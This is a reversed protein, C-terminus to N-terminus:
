PKITLAREVSWGRILRCSVTKRNLGMDEAWAIMPKTIGRFTIWYTSRRNRSQEEKTSWKCNEPSYNSDNDIRDLQLGKKYTPYMDELFNIVDKWRDCVKIGRGGYNKYDKRDPDECRTRMNYYVKYIKHGSLGHIPKTGM